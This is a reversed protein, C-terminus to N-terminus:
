TIIEMRELKYNLLYGGLKDKTYHKPPTIMPLHTPAALLYVKDILKKIRDPVLIVNVKYEVKRKYIYETKVLDLTELITVFKGGIYLFFKDNKDYYKDDLALCDFWESYSLRKDKELGIKYKERLVMYYIRCLRKGIELTFNTLYDMDNDENEIRHLESLFQIYHTMVVGIIDDADVVNFFNSMKLLIEHMEKINEGRKIKTEIKSIEKKDQDTLRQKKTLLEDNNDFFLILIRKSRLNKMSM